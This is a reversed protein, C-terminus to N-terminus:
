TDVFIFLLDGRLLPERHRLLLCIAKCFLSTASAPKCLFSDSSHPRGVAKSECGIM